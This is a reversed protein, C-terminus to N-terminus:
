QPEIISFISNEVKEPSVHLSCFSHICHKQISTLKCKFYLCNIAKVSAWKMHTTLLAVASRCAGEQTTSRGERFHHGWSEQATDNWAATKRSLFSAAPTTREQFMASPTCYLHLALMCETILFIAANVFMSLHMGTCTFTIPPISLHHWWITCHQMSDSRKKQIRWKRLRQLEGYLCAKETVAFVLSTGYYMLIESLHVVRRVMKHTCRQEYEHAFLLGPRGAASLRCTLWPREM